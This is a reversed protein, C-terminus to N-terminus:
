ASAAVPLMMPLIDRGALAGDAVVAPHCPRMMTFALLGLPLDAIPDM